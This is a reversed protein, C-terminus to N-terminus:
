TATRAYKWEETNETGSSCNITKIASMYYGMFGFKDKQLKGITIGSFRNCKEKNAWSIANWTQLCVCNM